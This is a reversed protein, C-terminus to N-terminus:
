ILVVDERRAFQKAHNLLEAGGFTLAGLKRFKLDRIGAESRGVVLHNGRESVLLTYRIDEQINIEHTTTLPYDGTKLTIRVSPTVPTSSPDRRLRCDDLISFNKGIFRGGKEDYDIQLLAGVPDDAAPVDEVMAQSWSPMWSYIAGAVPYWFFLHARSRGGIAKVLVEWTDEKVLAPNKKLLAADYIPLREPASLSALGLIKDLENVADRERMTIIHRSFPRIGEAELEWFASRFHKAFEALKQGPQEPSLPLSPSEPTAGGLYPKNVAEQVTWTRNFWHRVNDYGDYRFPLGLGNFYILARTEFNDHRYIHGITPVDTIWEEERQAEGVDEGVQRLCLVDLWSYELKEHPRDDSMAYNLLEIRVRELRLDKPIPVPWKHENIPTSVYSREDEAVWSHSVPLCQKLDGGWWYYPIVRNSCLDWVRRPPLKPNTIYSEARDLADQRLRADESRADDMDAARTTLDSLWQRRFYSYAMGFDYDLSICRDLHFQLFPKVLSFSTGMVSNLDDLLDQVKFSAYKKDALSSPIVYHGTFSRQRQVELLPDRIAGQDDPSITFKRPSPHRFSHSPDTPSPPSPLPFPPPFILFLLRLPFLLISIFRLLQPLVPVRILLLFFLLIVPQLPQTPM